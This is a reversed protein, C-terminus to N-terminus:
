ILIILIRLKVYMVHKFVKFHINLWDGAIPVLYIQVSTLLFPINCRDLNQPLTLYITVGNTIHSGTYDPTLATSQQGSPRSNIGM